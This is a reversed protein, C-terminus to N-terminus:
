VGFSESYAVKGNRAIMVVAGPIVNKAIEDRLWQSIRDLREASFGVDASKATPLEQAAVTALLAFGIIFSLALSKLARMREEWHPPACKQKPTRRRTVCIISARRM